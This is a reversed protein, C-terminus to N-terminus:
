HQVSELSRTIESDTFLEHLRKKIRNETYYVQRKPLINVQEDGRAYKRKKPMGNCGCSEGLYLYGISLLYEHAQETM